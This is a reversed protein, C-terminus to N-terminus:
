MSKEHLVIASPMDSAQLLRYAAAACADVNSDLTTQSSSHHVNRAVGLHAEFEIVQAYVVDRGCVCVCLCM